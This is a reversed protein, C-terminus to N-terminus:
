PVNVLKSVVWCLCWLQCQDQLVLIRSNEFFVTCRFGRPKNENELKNCCKCMVWWYFLFLFRCSSLTSIKLRRGLEKQLLFGSFKATCSRELFEVFNQRLTGQINDAAAKFEPNRVFHTQNYDAKFVTLSSVFEAENLNQNIEVNVLKEM